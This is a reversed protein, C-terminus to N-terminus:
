SSPKCIYGEDPTWVCDNKSLDCDPCCPASMAAPQVAYHVAHVKVGDIGARRLAAHVAAHVKPGANQLAKAIASPSRKRVSTTKRASVTKRATTSASAAKKKSIAM